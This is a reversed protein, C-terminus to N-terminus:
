QAPEHHAPPVKKRDRILLFAVVVSLAASVLVWVAMESMSKAYTAPDSTLWLLGPLLVVFIFG